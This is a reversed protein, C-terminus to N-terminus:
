YDLNLEKSRSALHITCAAILAAGTVAIALSAGVANDNHFIHDTIWAILTTGVGFGVLTGTLIYAAMIQGRFMNPTVEFLAVASQGSVIGANFVLLGIGLLSLPAYPSLGAVTVLAPSILLANRVTTFVITKPNAVNRRSVWWSGAIIGASGLLMQIMGLGFGINAAAWHFKRIFIAPTWTGVGYYILGNLAFTTIMLAIIGSKRRL